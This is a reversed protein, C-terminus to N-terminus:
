IGFSETDRVKQFNPMALLSDQCLTAWVQASSDKLLCLWSSDRDNTEDAGHEWTGKRLVM